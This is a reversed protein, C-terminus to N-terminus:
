PPIQLTSCEFAQLISSWSMHKDVLMKTPRFMHSSRMFDRTQDSTSNPIILEAVSGCATAMVVKKSGAFGYVYIEEM